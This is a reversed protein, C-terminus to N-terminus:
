KYCVSMKKEKKPMSNEQRGKNETEEKAELSGLSFKKLRFEFM